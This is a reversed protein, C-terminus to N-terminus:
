LKVGSKRSDKIFAFVLGDLRKDNTYHESGSHREYISAWIVPGQRTVYRIQLVQFDASTERFEIGQRELWEKLEALKSKHLLNRSM